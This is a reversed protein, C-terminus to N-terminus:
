KKPEKSISSWDGGDVACKMIKHSLNRLYDEYHDDQIKVLKGGVRGLKAQTYNGEILIM